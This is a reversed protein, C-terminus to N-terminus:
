GSLGPPPLVLTGAMHPAGQDEIIVATATKGVSVKTHQGAMANHTRLIIDTSYAAIEKLDMTALAPKQEAIIQRAAINGSGNLQLKAHGDDSVRTYIPDNAGDFRFSEAVNDKYAVAVFGGNHGDHFQDSWLQNM